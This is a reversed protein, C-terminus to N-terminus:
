PRQCSCRTLVLLRQSPVQRRLALQHRYPVRRHQCPVLLRLVQQHWYPVLRHQCPVLQDLQRALLRLLLALEIFQKL